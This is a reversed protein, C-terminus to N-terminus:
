ETSVKTGDILCTSRNFTEELLFRSVLAGKWAVSEWIAPLIRRLVRAQGEHPKISPFSGEGEILNNEIHVLFGQAIEAYSLDDIVGMRGLLPLTAILLFYTNTDCFNCFRVRRPKPEWEFDFRVGGDRTSVLQGRVWDWGEAIQSFPLETDRLLAAKTLFYLVYCHHVSDGFLVSRSGSGYLYRRVLPVKKFYPFQFFIRQLRSPYVYPWFGDKRQGNMLHRYARDREEMLPSDSFGGEAAAYELLYLAIATTNQVDAPRTGPKVVNHAFRGPGHLCRELYRMLSIWHDQDNGLGSLLDSLSRAGWVADLVTGTVYLSGEDFHWGIPDWRPEDLGSYANQEELSRLAARARLLWDENGTRHYETAFVQAACATDQSSVAGSIPNVVQGTFEEPAGDQHIALEATIRSWIRFLPSLDAIM